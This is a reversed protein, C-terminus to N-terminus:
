CYIVVSKKGKQRNCEARPLRRGIMLARDVKLSSPARTSDLKVRAFRGGRSCGRISRSFECRFIGKLVRSATACYGSADKLYYAWRRRGVDLTAERRGGNGSSMRACM